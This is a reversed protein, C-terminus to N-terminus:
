RGLFGEFFVGIDKTQTSQSCIMLVDNIDSDSYLKYNGQQGFSSPSISRREGGPTTRGMLGALRDAMMREAEIGSTLMANKQMSYQKSSPSPDRSAPRSNNRSPIRSKRASGPHNSKVASVGTSGMSPTGQTSNSFYTSNSDQQGSPRPPTNQPAISLTAGQGSNRKNFLGSTPKNSRLNLDEPSQNRSTPQSMFKKKLRSRSAAKNASSTPILVNTSAHGATKPRYGSNSSSDANSSADGSGRRSRSKSTVTGDYLRSRGQPGSSPPRRSRPTNTDIKSKVNTYRNNRDKANNAADQDIASLSRVRVPLNLSDKSSSKPISNTENNINNNDNSNMINNENQNTTTHSNSAKMQRLNKFKKDKVASATKPRMKDRGSPPITLQRKGNTSSPRTVGDEKIAKRQADTLQGEIDHIESPYFNRLENFCTRAFTRVNADRHSIDKKVVELLKDKVKNHKIIKSPWCSFILLLSEMLKQRDIDSKSTRKELLVLLMNLTASHSLYIELSAWSASHILKSKSKLLSFLKEVIFEGLDNTPYMNPYTESVFSATVCAEVQLQSRIDAIHLPLAQKMASWFDRNSEDLTNEQISARIQKLYSLRQEWNQEQTKKNSEQSLLRQIETLSASYKNLLKESRSTPYLQKIPFLLHPVYFKRLLSFPFYQM